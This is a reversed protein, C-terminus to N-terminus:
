KKARKLRDKLAARVGVALAQMHAFKQDDDMADRAGAAAGFGHEYNAPNLLLRRTSALFEEGAGAEALELLFQELWVRGRQSATTSKFAIQSAPFNPTANYAPSDERVVSATRGDGHLLWEASAHAVGKARLFQAIRNLATADPLHADNRWKSVTTESVSVATAVDPNKLGLRKMSKTLRDGFTEDQQLARDPTARHNFSKVSM